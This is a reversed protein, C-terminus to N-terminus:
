WSAQVTLMLHRGAQPYLYNETILTNYIYSFSYGNSAYQVDFLNNVFLSLQLKQWYRSSPMWSIRANQYHFAPLKRADNSTNDLYQRSTYKASLEAEIQHVPKYLLRLAAIFPPSFSIETDRHLITVKDFGNTYDAIVENFEQIRNKSVAINANLAWKESLRYDLSTEVGLRYSKDVNVRVPAGVDNLEGTLVLQNRYDMYYIGAQFLARKNNRRYGFEWNTLKESEPIQGLANDIFDSRSPEKQAVAVSAYWESLSDAKFTAGAKPNLFLYPAGVQIERLDNDTGAVEYQIRRVQVDGHFRFARMSYVARTYASFDSKNGENEYYKREKDLDAVPIVTQIVQGFHRGIYVNAAIGANLTLHDQIDMEFDSFMGALDNDLWRRRVLDARELANGSLDTVSMGYNAFADNTRFEEFYGRGKTYYLTSNWRKAPSLSLAHHLQLHTQTYNDVQRPYLYYNYSRGSDFLNVSDEATKYVSGLNNYYHNLLADQNNELKAQPVGYWAQYTTEKGQLLKLSLSSKGTIRSASLYMSELDATARDIFGDSRILSYRGDIAYRNNMLGTGSRVSLKRTNFAGLTAAVEAYSNVRVENTSISITGGFAGPGNTSPGVGRQVQLSSVSGMLDPLDVWFVNHSEADNLPVGNITVNVRTQDSGRIRLGTYGIGTGADSTVQLSPLWQLMFPVDVGYNEKALERGTLNDSVFPDGQEVRNAGIEIQDLNYIEGAMVIDKVISSQVEIREVVPQYGIFTVKLSYSGPSVNSLVYRGVADTSAAISTNEFFVTAFSLKEGTTNRIVGSVTYQAYLTFSSLFLFFSLLYSRM